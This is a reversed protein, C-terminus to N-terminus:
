RTVRPPFLRHRPEDPVVAPVLPNLAATVSRASATVTLKGANEVLHDSVRRRLTEDTRLAEIASAWPAPDGLPLVFRRSLEPDTYLLPASGFTDAIVVPIGSMAAEVASRGFAERHSTGVYALAGDWLRQSAVWGGVTVTPPAADRLRNELPGSGYMVARAASGTMAALLLDPNKDEDYRAAWVVTDRDGSGDWQRPVPRIGAPVLRVDRRLELADRLIPTTAWVETARRLASRELSRWLLARASGVEGRLPWPLGRTYAVWPLDTISLAMDTQPILSVVVDSLAVGPLSRLHHAFRRVGGLGGPEWPLESVWSPDDDPYDGSATRSVGLLLNWDRGQRRGETVLERASRYVGTRAVLPSAVFTVKM